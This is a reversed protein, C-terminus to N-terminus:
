VITVISTVCYISSEGKQEQECLIMQEEALQFVVSGLVGPLDQVLCMELM